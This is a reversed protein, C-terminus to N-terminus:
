SIQDRGTALMVDRFNLGSSYVSCKVKRKPKNCLDYFNESPVLNKSDFWQLNSLDRTQGVNLYYNKSPIKDFDKPLTLHRYTGLVGDKLVNITLDNALIDSFPKENFNIRGGTLNGCDFLCRIVEGGPELRLCNILGVIGNLSSDNAVLWIPEINDNDRNEILKQKVLDFWKFCNSSVKFITVGRSNDPKAEVKRFLIAVSNISDYKRGIVSFGIRTAVAVYDAIRQELDSNKLNKKGNMSNLSLEAETYSCKFVSMLFGKSVIVDFADQLFADLELSRLESSDKMVILDANTLVELPFVSSKYDWESFKFSKNKLDEPVSDISKVAVSYSVDIPYIHSTALHNDVEAAMLGDTLNVELVKIERKPVNNESVIDLLSRILRENKSVQNIVDSSLNFEPKSQLDGIMTNITNGDFNRNEDKVTQYVKDLIKLM